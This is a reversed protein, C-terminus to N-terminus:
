QYLPIAKMLGTLYKSYVNGKATIASAHIEAPKSQLPPFGKESLYTVDAGWQRLGDVLDGSPREQMRSVGSLRYCGQALALVDTLPRFVTGANGLFLNAEKVPFSLPFQGGIGQVRYNDKDVEVIRIGLAKLADLMRKTDDSALLGRINTVGDALAALLLIRNSISKSGPLRVVGEATKVASLDLFSM